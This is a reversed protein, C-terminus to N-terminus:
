QYLYIGLLVMGIIILLIIFILCDTIFNLLNAKAYSLDKITNLISLQKYKLYEELEAETLDPEYVTYFKSRSKKGNDNIYPYVGEPLKGNEKLKQKYEENEEPSCPIKQLLDLDVKCSRLAEKLDFKGKAM